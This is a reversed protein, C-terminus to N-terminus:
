QPIISQIEKRLKAIRRHLHDYRADPLKRNKAQRRLELTLDRLMKSYSTESPIVAALIQGHYSSEEELRKIAAFYEERVKEQTVAAYRLTMAIDRHGLIDRLAFINMGAGLLQTAFTHRLRHSVIPESATIDETVEKFAFMLAHTTVKAGRNSPILFAVRKGQTITDAQKQIVQILKRTPPDLPVLRENNLKGLPVKLFFNGQHDEHVCDKGLNALEGVRLGTWRMLLLARHNIDKSDILRKQIIRDIEASLPRPLFNPKKPFDESRILFDPVQDIRGHDHHWRLYKRIVVINGIRTTPAQNLNALFSFYKETDKRSIKGIKLKNNGLFVYFHKLSSRHSQLTTIKLVTKMLNLFEEASPPLVVNILNARPKKRPVIDGAPRVPYDQLHLWTLFHWVVNRTKWRTEVSVQREVLYATFQDFRNRTLKELTTGTRNMWKLFIGIDSAYNGKSSWEIATKHERLFRDLLVRHEPSIEAKVEARVM